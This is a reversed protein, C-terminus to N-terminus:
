GRRHVYKHACLLHHPSIPQPPPRKAQICIRRKSTAARIKNELLFVIRVFKPKVASLKLCDFRYRTGPKRIIQLQGEPGYGFHVEDSFWVRYWDEPKPYQAKMFTAVRSKKEQREGLALGEHM